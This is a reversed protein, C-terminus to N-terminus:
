KGKRPRLELNFYDALKDAADLYITREGRAFGMLSQRTIGTERELRQFPMGSDLIAQRLVDTMTSAKNM